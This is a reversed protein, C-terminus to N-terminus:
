STSCPSPDPIVLASQDDHPQVADTRVPLRPKWGETTHLAGGKFWASRCSRCRAEERFRYPAVGPLTRLLGVTLQDGWHIDATVVALNLSCLPCSVITDKLILRAGRTLQM